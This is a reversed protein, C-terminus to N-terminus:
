LVVRVAMERYRPLISHKMKSNFSELHNTTNPLVDPKVNIAEAARQRGGACWDEAMNTWYPQLYDCFEIASMYVMAEPM